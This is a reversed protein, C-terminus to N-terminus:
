IEVHARAALRQLPARLLIGVLAMLGTGVAIGGFTKAFGVAEITRGALGSLKGGLGLTFLYWAGMTMAGLGAPAARSVVGYTATWAVLEGVAM